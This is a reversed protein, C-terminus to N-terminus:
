PVERMTMTMMTWCSLSITVSLVSMMHWAVGVVIDLVLTANDLVLRAMMTGRITAGRRVVFAVIRKINLACAMVKRSVNQYLVDQIVFLACLQTAGRWATVALHQKISVSIGTRLTSTVRVEM